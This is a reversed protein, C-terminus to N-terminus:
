SQRIGGRYDAGDLGMWNCLKAVMDSHREKDALGNENTLIVGM